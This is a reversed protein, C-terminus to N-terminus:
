ISVEQIIKPLVIEIFEYVIVFILPGLFLGYWGFTLPGLIYSFFIVSTAIGGRSSIHPRAIFDPISDVIILGVLFFIIPFLLGLIGNEIYGIGMILLTVPWYVLKMGIVPILSTVGCLIGILAPYALINGGPFFVTLLTFSIAGIVGTFIALLINGFFVVELDKDLTKIYEVVTDDYNTFKHIKNPIIHGDRLLYFALSFAILFTFFIGSLSSFIALGFQMGSDLFSEFANSDINRLINMIEAPTLNQLSNLEPFFVNFEESEFFEEIYEQDVFEFLSDGAQIFLARAEITVIRLTYILLIFVPIIFVIPAIAASVTKNIDKEILKDYVPRTSYYIFVGLVIAGIFNYFIFALISITILGFLIAIRRLNKNM